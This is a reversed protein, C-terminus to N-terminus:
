VVVLLLLEVEGGGDDDSPDIDDDVCGGVTRTAVATLLELLGLVLLLPPSSRVRAHGCVQVTHFRSLVEHRSLQGQVSLVVDTMLPWHRGEAAAGDVGGTTMTYWGSIVITSEVVGLSGRRCELHVDVEEGGVVVDATGSQLHVVTGCEPFVQVAADDAVHADATAVRREPRWRPHVSALCGVIESWLGAPWSSVDITWVRACSRATGEGGALSPSRAITPCQVFICPVFLDDSESAAVRLTGTAAANTGPPLDARSPWQAAEPARCLFKADVLLAELAHQLRPDYVSWLTALLRRSLRGTSALVTVDPDAGDLSRTRVLALPACVTCVNVNGGDGGGVAYPAIHASCFWRRCLDCPSLRRGVLWAWTPSYDCRECWATAARGDRGAAAAARHRGPTFRAGGDSDGLGSGPAGDESDNTRGKYVVLGVADLFALARRLEGSSTFGIGALLAAMDAFTVVSALWRAAPEDGPTTLAQAALVCDVARVWRVPATFCAAHDTWWQALSTFLAAVGWGRLSDVAHHLAAVPSPSEIDIPPLWRIWVRRLFTPTLIRINLM